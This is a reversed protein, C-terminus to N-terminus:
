ACQTDCPALARTTPPIVQIACSRSASHRRQLSILSQTSSAMRFSSTASTLHESPVFVFFYSSLAPNHLQLVGAYGTSSALNFGKGRGGGWVGTDRPPLNGCKGCGQPGERPVAAAPRACDGERRAGGGSSDLRQGRAVRGDRLHAPHSRRRRPSGSHGPHTPPIDPSPRQGRRGRRLEAPLM